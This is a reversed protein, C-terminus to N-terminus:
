AGGLARVYEALPPEGHAKVYRDDIWTAFTTIHRIGRAAFADADAAVVGPDWPLKKAPRAWGSFKSVDLWYELVQATEKGFVELNADLIDLYGGHSKPDPANHSLKVGRDAISGEYSRNIPAFEVFLGPHPAVRKPPELTYHYAIHCLTAKPDVHERLAKIMANEVLTAQESATLGKCEPCHCWERGDDPWYFYRGTTPKLVRSVEVASGAIIEVARASSPCCNFDENRRGAGDVRFLDTDRYYLERSLLDGMAHLEYEVEVGLKKCRALFDAGRESEVFAILVDLRRAAHLGITTIGAKAAREPWDALELDWPYLVVGRTEFRPAALRAFADTACGIAAAAGLLGFRRRNIMRKERVSRVPAIWTM